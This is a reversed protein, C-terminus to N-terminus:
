CYESIKAVKALDAWRGLLQYSNILSPKAEKLTEVAILNPDSIDPAFFYQSDWFKTRAKACKYRIHQEETQNRQIQLLYRLFERHYILELFRCKEVFIYNFVYTGDTWSTYYTVM